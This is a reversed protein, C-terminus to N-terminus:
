VISDTHVKERHVGSTGLIPPWQSPALALPTVSSTLPSPSVSHAVGAADTGAAAGTGTGADAHHITFPSSGASSDKSSAAAEEENDDNINAHQRTHTAHTPRAQSSIDLPYATSTSTRSPPILPAPAAVATMESIRVVRVRPLVMQSHGGGGGGGGHSTDDGNQHSQKGRSSGNGGGSSTQDWLREKLGSGFNRTVKGAWVLVCVRCVVAFAATIVFQEFTHQPYESSDTHVEYLKSAIYAPQLITLLAFAQMYRLSERRVGLIGLSLWVLTLVTQAVNLVLEALYRSIFVAALTVLLLQLYVDIKLLSLFIEATKYKAALDVRSSRLRDFMRRGFSKLISPSLAIYVVECICVIILMYGSARRFYSGLDSSRWHIAVFSITSTHAVISAILQFRHQLRVADVAFFLTGCTAMVSVLATNLVTISPDRGGQDEEDDPIRNRRYVSIVAVTAAVLLMCSEALLLGLYVRAAISIRAYTRQPQVVRMSTSADFVPSSVSARSNGEWPVLLKHAPQVLLPEALQRTISMASSRPM